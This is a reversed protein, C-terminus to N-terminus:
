AVDWLTITHDFNASALTRGDPSLALGESVGPLSRQEQGTAVDWFRITQGGSALMKGDPSFAFGFVSGPHGPLIRQERGSSLDWLKITTDYGGSALTRGDPSFAMALIFGSHGTEVVLEPKQARAPLCLALALVPLLVRHLRNGM